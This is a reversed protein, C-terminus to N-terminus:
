GSNEREQGFTQVSSLCVANLSSVSMLSNIVLDTVLPAIKGESPFSLSIGQKRVM